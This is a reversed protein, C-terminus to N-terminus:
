TGESMKNFTLTFGRGDKIRCGAYLGNLLPATNNRADALASFSINGSDMRKLASHLGTVQTLLTTEYEKNENDKRVNNDSFVMLTHVFELAVRLEPLPSMECGERM